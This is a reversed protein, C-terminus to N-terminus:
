VTESTIALIFRAGEALNTILPYAPGNRVGFKAFNGGFPNDNSAGLDLSDDLTQIHLQPDTLTGFHDALLTEDPNDNILLEGPTVGRRFRTVRSDDDGPFDIVDSGDLLSGAAPPNDAHRYIDDTDSTRAAASCLMLTHRTRGAPPTWDSLSLWAAVSVTVEDTALGGRYDSVTLEFELDQAMATSPATFTPMVVTPDSLAVDTGSLQVWVYGAISGDPDSSASGDLTVVAGPAVNQDAGARATPLQNTGPTVFLEASWLAVDHEAPSPGTAVVRLRVEDHADPIAIDFDAWGGDQTCMITAGDYDTMDDGASYSNSDTWGRILFIDEWAGGTAMGQVLLGENPSSFRGIVACRLRLVRGAAGEWNMEVALDIPSNAVVDDVTGSSSDSAVYPRASNTGPQTFGSIFQGAEILGWRGRRLVGDDVFTGFERLAALSDFRYTVSAAVSVTVEDTAQGGRDDSVTLEFELDQAMATSPATFTPMVATPDSLAVDTGSRQVWVYTAISGDPDSSASGDLTVVAGPAVNQDAGARATPLQSLAEPGELTLTARWRPTGRMAVQDYSIGSLGGRVRAVRTRGDFPDCVDIWGHAYTAAWQLYEDLRDAVIEAVVHRVLHDVLYSTPYIRDQRVPGGEIETRAVDPGAEIRYDSTFRAIAPWDSSAALTTSIRGELTLTARWRPTGRMAVQDYSIGAVGNRVRVSRTRGDFPDCIDFWTHANARAWARFASLRDAAIAAAVQRLVLVSTYARAQRVYGDSFPTRSVAGDDVSMSYERELEAYTPWDM